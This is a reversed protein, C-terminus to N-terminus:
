LSSLQPCRGLLGALVALYSDQSMLVKLYGSM